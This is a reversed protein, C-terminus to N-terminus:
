RSGGTLDVSEGTRAAADIAELVAAQAIADERGFRPAEEGRVARSASEIELRYADLSDPGPALGLAGDPDAEIRRAQEGQVLTVSTERCLWPDPVLLRGRTGVLELEDRRELDLGVDLQALIGGSMELTAAMRLDGDDAGPAEDVVRAARVSRPEGALLRLASVCYCGLDRHAGGGLAATRRIDGAPADVTLAARVLALDGIAGEALLNEVLRTRPHQRWMLGEILVRDAAAAADFCAAADAAALALPKECLVHKGAELARITWESHLAIPLPIYVADVEPDALLQEYGTHAREIGLERAFEETRRADRGAVAVLRAGRAADIAPALTRGISATSLMGWRVEPAEGGGPAREIVTM